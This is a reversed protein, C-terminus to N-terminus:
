VMMMAAGGLALAVIAMMVLVLRRGTKMEAVLAREPVSAVSAVDMAAALDVPQLMQTQGTHVGFVHSDAPALSGDDMYRDEIPLTDAGEAEAQADRADDWTVQVQAQAQAQAQAAEAQAHGKKFWLTERFRTRMPKRTSRGRAQDLPGRTFVPNADAGAQLRAAIFDWM